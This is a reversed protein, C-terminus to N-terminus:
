IKAENGYELSSVYLVLCLLLGVLLINLVKIDRLFGILLEM